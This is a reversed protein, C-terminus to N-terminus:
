WQKKVKKDYKWNVLHSKTSPTQSEQVLHDERQQWLRCVISGQLMHYTLHLTMVFICVNRM